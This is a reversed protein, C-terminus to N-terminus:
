VPKGTVIWSDHHVVLPRFIDETLIVNKGFALTVGNRHEEVPRTRHVLLDGVSQFLRHKESGEALTRSDRKFQESEGVSSVAGIGRIEPVISVTVEVTTLKLQDVQKRGAGTTLIPFPQDLAAESKGSGLAVSVIPTVVTPTTQHRSTVTSTTSREVISHDSRFRNKM